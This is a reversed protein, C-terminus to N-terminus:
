IRRSRMFYLLHSIRRSLHWRVTTLYRDTVYRRQEFWRLCAFGERSQTALPRTAAIMVPSENEGQM